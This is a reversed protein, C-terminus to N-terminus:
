RGKAERYGDLGTAVGVLAMAIFLVVWHVSLVGTMAPAIRLEEYRMLSGGVTLLAGVLPRKGVLITGLGITLFNIIAIAWPNKM